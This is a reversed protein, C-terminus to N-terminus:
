LALKRQKSQILDQLLAAVPVCGGKQQGQSAGEGAPSRRLKQKQLKPLVEGASLLPVCPIFIDPPHDLYLSDKGTEGM